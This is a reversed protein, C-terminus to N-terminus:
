HHKKWRKSPHTQPFTKKERWDWCHNRLMTAFQEERFIEKNHSFQCFRTNQCGNNAKFFFKCPTYKKPIGSESGNQELWTSAFRLAKAAEEAYEEEAAAQEDASEEDAKSKTGDAENTEEVEMESADPEIYRRLVARRPATHRQVTRRRLVAEEEEEEEQVEEEEKVSLLKDESEHLAIAEDLEADEEVLEEQASLLMRRKWEVDEKLRYLKKLLTPRMARMCGGTERMKSMKLLAAASAEKTDRHIEMFAATRPGRAENKVAANLQNFQRPNASQIFQSRLKNGGPQLM